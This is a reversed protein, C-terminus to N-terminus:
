HARPIGDVDYDGLAQFLAVPHAQHWHSILAVGPIMEAIGDSPSVEVPGEPGWCLPLHGGPRYVALPADTPDYVWDCLVCEIM